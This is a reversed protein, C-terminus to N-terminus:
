QMIGLTGINGAITIIVQKSRLSTHPTELELAVQTMVLFVHLNVM